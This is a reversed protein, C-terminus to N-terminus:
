KGDDNRPLRRNLTGGGKGRDSFNSEHKSCGFGLQQLFCRAIQALLQLFPRTRGNYVPINTDRPSVRCDIRCYDLGPHSSSSLLLYFVLFSQSLKQHNQYPDSEHASQETELSLDALPVPPTTDFM